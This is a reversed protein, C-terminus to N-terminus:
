LQSLFALLKDDPRYRGPRCAVPSQTQALAKEKLALNASLYIQTTEVSEHGMWLAIVARDVGAQLLEMAMTHRLWHPTVKKKQLSPCAHAATALHKALVYRVGDGSLQAGRANPFVKTSEEAPLERTWAKLLMAAQKTLPTCREKRGKGMCRVHAGTGLAVDKRALKILESLRLGTQIAIL